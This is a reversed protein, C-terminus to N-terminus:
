RSAFSRAAALGTGAEGLRAAVARAIEEVPFGSGPSCMVVNTAPVYPVDFFETGTQVVIVPVQAGGSRAPGRHGRRDARRRAGARARRMRRGAASASRTRPASPKLEKELQAALPGNVMLPRTDEAASRVEKVLGWLAFPSM